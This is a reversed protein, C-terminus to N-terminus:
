GEIENEANSARREDARRREDQDKWTCDLEETDDRAIANSALETASFNTVLLNGDQAGRSQSRDLPQKIRRRPLGTEASLTVILAAPVQIM